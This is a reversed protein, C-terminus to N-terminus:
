QAGKLLRRLEAQAKRVIAAQERIAALEFQGNLGKADERVERTTWRTECRLCERRRRISLITSSIRSDIVNTKGGCHCFFPHGHIKKRKM